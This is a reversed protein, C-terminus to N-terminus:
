TKWQLGFVPVLLFTRIEMPQLDVTLAKGRCGAPCSLATRRAFAAVAATANRGALSMHEGAQWKLRNIQAACCWSRRM